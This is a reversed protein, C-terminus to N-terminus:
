RAGGAGVPSGRLLRLLETLVGTYWRRDLGVGASSLLMAEVGTGPLAFVAHFPGYREDLWGLQVPVGGVPVVQRHGPHPEARAPVELRGAGARAVILRLEHGRDPGGAYVIETETERGPGTFRVASDVDFVGLRGPLGAAQALAGAAAAGVPMEDPHDPQSRRLLWLGIPVSVMAAAPHRAWYSLEALPTAAIAAAAAPDAPRLARYFEVAREDSLEGDLISLEITTRALRASAGPRRLYDVGRWLLYRDDLPLATTPSNWLCPQDLAPFPWEYLFQKIRFRCGPGSVEYRYVATNNTSWPTRGEGPSPSRGPPAQRRLTGTDVTYEPPLGVPTWLVFNCWPQADAPSVRPPAPELGTHHPVSRTTWTTLGTM